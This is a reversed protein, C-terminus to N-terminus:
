GRSQTARIFARVAETFIARQHDFGTRDVAIYGHALLHPEVVTQLATENTQTM